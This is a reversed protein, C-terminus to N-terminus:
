GSEGPQWRDIGPIGDFDSDFTALRMGPAQAYAAALADAFGLRPIRAWMELAREITPKDQHRFGRLQVITNILAAAEADPLQYHARATLVFAVEALIADSTTIELEGLGALRFLEQAIDARGESGQDRPHALARLFVNADVFIM